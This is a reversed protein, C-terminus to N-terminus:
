QYHSTEVWYHSSSKEALLSIVDQVIVM